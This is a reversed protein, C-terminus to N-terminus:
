LLRDSNKNVFDKWDKYSKGSSRFKQFLHCVAVAMADTQDLYKPKEKFNLLNTLMMAVQEKSANGNGTIAIKIKRPAYEFVPLKNKIAVAISVGQSRGLKLMSQVNKGFFPSEIAMVDPKFVSIINDLRDFIMFLKEYPDDVKRLDLVGSVTLNLDKGNKEVIAYGFLLTGPDVGIVRKEISM